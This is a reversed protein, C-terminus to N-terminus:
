NSDGIKKTIPIFDVEGEYLIESKLSKKKLHHRM